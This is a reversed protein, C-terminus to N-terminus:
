LLSYSWSLVYYQTPFTGDQKISTLTTGQHHHSQSILSLARPHFISKAFLHIAPCHTKVSGNWNQPNRKWLIDEARNQEARIRQVEPALFHYSIRLSFCRANGRLLCKSLFIAVKLTNQSVLQKEKSFTVFFQFLAALSSFIISCACRSFRRHVISIIYSLKKSRAVYIWTTVSNPPIVALAPGRECSSTRGRVTQEGITRLVIEVTPIPSSNWFRAQFFAACVSSLHPCRCCCCSLLLFHVRMEKVMGM